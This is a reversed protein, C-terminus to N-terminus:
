EDDGPCSIQRLANRHEACIICTKAGHLLDMPRVRRIHKKGAAHGELTESSTCSVNCVSRAPLM